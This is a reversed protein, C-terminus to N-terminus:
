SGTFSGYQRMYPVLGGAEVLELLFPAFPAASMTRGVSQNIVEVAREHLQVSIRDGESMM